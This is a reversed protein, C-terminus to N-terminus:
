RPLRIEAGTLREVVEVLDTFDRGGLGFSKAAVLGQAVEAAVPTPVGLDRAVELLLGADKAALELAFETPRGRQNIGEVMRDIFLNGGGGTRVMEVMTRLDIGSRACIALGELSVWVTTFAYLSNVLKAVNGAGLPGMHFTARGITGLLPACREYTAADGGVLFVLMRARAGPAGGTLPCELLHHGSEALRAGVRRITDPANTTLDILVSGAPAAEAWEAAVSDMVAPTPVSLFTVESERAVGAIGGPAKAGAETLTKRRAEDLDHVHVTHGDQVLNAAVAGGINGLGIFGLRQTDAM